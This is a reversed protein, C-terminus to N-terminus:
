KAPAMLKMAEGAHYSWRFHVGGPIRSEAEEEAYYM